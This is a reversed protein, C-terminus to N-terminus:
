GAEKKIWKPVKTAKVGVKMAEVNTVMLLAAIGAIKFM